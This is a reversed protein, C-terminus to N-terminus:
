ALQKNLNKRLGIWSTMSRSKEKLNSDLYLYNFTRVQYLVSYRASLTPTKWSSKGSKGDNAAQLSNNIINPDILRPDIAKQYEITFKELDALDKNLEPIKYKYCDLLLQDDLTVNPPYKAAYNNVIMVKDKLTAEMFMQLMNTSNQASSTIQSHNASPVRSVREVEEFPTSMRFELTSPNVRSRPPLEPAAHHGGMSPPAVHVTPRRPELTSLLGGQSNTAPVTSIRPEGTPLHGGMYLPVGPALSTRSESVPPHGGMYPPVDQAMKKEM